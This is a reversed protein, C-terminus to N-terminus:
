TSRRAESQVVASVDARLEDEGDSGLDERLVRRLIDRVEVAGSPREAPVEALLRLLLARLREPLVSARVLGPIRLPDRRRSWDSDPSGDFAGPGILAEYLVAGLSFLDARPDVQGTDLLAEPAAFAPLLPTASTNPGEGAGTRAAISLTALRVEGYASLLINSPTVARHVVGHPAWPEVQLGHLYALARAVQVGV